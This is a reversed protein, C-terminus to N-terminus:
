ISRSRLKFARAEKATPKHARLIKLARQFREVTRKQALRGSGNEGELNHVWMIQADLLAALVAQSMCAKVRLKKLIGGCMKADPVEIKKTPLTNKM